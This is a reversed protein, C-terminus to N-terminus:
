RLSREVAAVLLRDDSFIESKWTPNAVDLLFCLYMGLSYFYRRGIGSLGPLESARRGRTRAFREFTPEAELADAAAPPDILFRAEVYRATGEVFMAFEDAAVPAGDPM